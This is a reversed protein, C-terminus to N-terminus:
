ASVYKLLNGFFVPIFIMFDDHSITKWRESTTGHTNPGKGLMTSWQWIYMSNHTISSDNICLVGEKGDLKGKRVFDM